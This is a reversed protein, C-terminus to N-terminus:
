LSTNQTTGLFFLILTPLQLIPVYLL